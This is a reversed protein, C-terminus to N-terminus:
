WAGDQMHYDTPDAFPITPRATAAAASRYPPQRQAQKRIGDKTGQLWSLRAFCVVELRALVLRSTMFCMFIEAESSLPVGFM